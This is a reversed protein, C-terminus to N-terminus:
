RLSGFFFYKSAAPASIDYLIVFLVISIGVKICTNQINSMIIVCSPLNPAPDMKKKFIFDHNDCLFNRLYMQFLFKESEAVEFVEIVVISALRLVLFIILKFLAPGPCHQM